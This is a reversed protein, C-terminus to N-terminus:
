FPIDEEDYEKEAANQRMKQLGYTWGFAPEDNIRKSGEDYYLVHKSILKGTLRNKTISFYRQDPPIEDSKTYHMVVDAKNTIESAGAIDDNMDGSIGKRPHVVLVCIIKYKKCINVMQSVFQSQARYLKEPTESDLVMMLNDILVFKIGYRLISEEVAEVIQITNSQQIAKNDFLMIKGNYSDDPEKGGFYQSDFWMRFVFDPLEGSYVFSKYQCRTVNCLIQSAFTSKGGGRKGSLIILEGEHMGGHLVRDISEIGTPIFQIDDINVREVQELPEIYWLPLEKANQIANIVAERGYKQLLENADKCDKYSAKRVVKIRCQLREKLEDVLTISDTKREYDGFIIVEDFESLWDWCHPLWTFGNCGTPVSVANNFGAEVVSLSDIQGETIVLQDFGECHNMGFLIPKCNPECWEKNKDKEPNFDTKRYKVFQLQDHSDRFPFVLVNETGDKITLEYKKTVRESIGRAAMYNIAGDKTEKHKDSFRRFKSDYGNIELYRDMSDSLSFDFDKAITLMNGRQRCSSRKCEFQGTRLNISFTEKDKKSKCYPCYLFVLENGKRKKTGPITDAFRFVDEEKLDYLAM